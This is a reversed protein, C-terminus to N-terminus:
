LSPHGGRAQLDPPLTQPKMDCALSWVVATHLTDNLGVWPSTLRTLLPLSPAQAMQQSPTWPDAPAFVPLHLAQGCLDPLSPFLPALAPSLPPPSPCLPSNLQGVKRCNVGNSVVRRGKWSCLTQQTTWAPRLSDEPWLRGLGPHCTQAVVALKSLVHQKNIQRNTESYITLLYVTM